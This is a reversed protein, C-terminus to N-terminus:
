SAACMSCSTRFLRLGSPATHDSRLPATQAGPIGYLEPIVAKSEVYNADLPIGYLEPILSGSGSPNWIARPHPVAARGRMERCLRPKSKGPSGSGISNWIARPDPIPGQIGYLEPILSGSGIPNWIARPDPVAGRDRIGRCPRPTSKGPPECGTPNWIARPDPIPGQIGYLEPILSPVETAFERCPRPTSKGSIECGTPNWIARPDPIREWQSEM